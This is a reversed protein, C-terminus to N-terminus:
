KESAVFSDLMRSNVYIASYGIIILAKLLFGIDFRTSLLILMFFSIFGMLSGFGLYHLVKAQDSKIKSLGFYFVMSLTECLVFTYIYESSDM